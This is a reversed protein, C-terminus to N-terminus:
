RQYTLLFLFVRTCVCRLYRSWTEWNERERERERERRNRIRLREFGLLERVQLKYLGCSGRFEQPNQPQPTHTLESELRLQTTRNPNKETQRFQLETSNKEKPNQPRRETKEHKFIPTWLDFNNCPKLNSSGGHSRQASFQHKEYELKQLLFLEFLRHVLLFGKGIKKKGKFNITGEKKNKNVIDAIKIQPKLYISIPLFCNM